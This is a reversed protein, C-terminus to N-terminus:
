VGPNLQRIFERPESFARRIEAAWSPSGIAIGLTSRCEEEYGEDPWAGLAFCLAEALSENDHWTTMVVRDVTSPPTSDDRKADVIDHVRECDPGWACIFVAGARLVRGAFEAIEESTASRADWAIVCVFRSSTLSLDAPCNDSTLLELAFLDRETTKDYGLKEVSAM